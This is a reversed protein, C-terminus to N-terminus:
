GQKGSAEAEQGSLRPPPVPRNAGATGESVGQPTRGKLERLALAPGRGPSSSPGLPCAQDPDRGATHGPQLREGDHAAAGELSSSHSQILDRPRGVSCNERGGVPASLLEEENGWVSLEESWPGPAGMLSDSPEQKLSVRSRM